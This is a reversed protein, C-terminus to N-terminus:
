ANAAYTTHTHKHQEGLSYKNSKFHM